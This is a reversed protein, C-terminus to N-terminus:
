ELTDRRAGQPSYRMSVSMCPELHVAEFTTRLVLM